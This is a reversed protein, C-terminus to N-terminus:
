FAIDKLIQSLAIDEKVWDPRYEELIEFWEKLGIGLKKALLQLVLLCRPEDIDDLFTPSAYWKDGIYEVLIGFLEVTTCDHITKGM